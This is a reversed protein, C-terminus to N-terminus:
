SVWTALIVILPMTILSLLTTFSVMSASLSTNNGFREAFMSTNVAVPASVSISLSILLAGRIGCLWFIGLTILPMIVLRLASSFLFMRNKLNGIFRSNSLYLGILMMPLPTNLAGIYSLTEFFIKPAPVSSVFLILGITFAIVGPNLFAKKSLLSKKSGKMLSVGYTWAFLNFIAVYSAGYFVGEGGLIAQQLPISMFGCNSFIAGFRLVRQNKQDKDKIFINSLAIFILHSLAALLFSLLLKKFDKVSFEREWFSKIIVCPTVVYLLINTISKAASTEVMKTRGLVFGLLVMIFLIAVQLAINSFINGM